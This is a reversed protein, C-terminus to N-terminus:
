GQLWVSALDCVLEMVFLMCLCGCDGSEWMTLIGPVWLVRKVFDSCGFCSVPGLVEGFSSVGGCLGGFCIIGGGM